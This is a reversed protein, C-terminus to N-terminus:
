ELEIIRPVKFRGDEVEPANAMAAEHPLTPQVEDPRFVNARPVPHATPPVHEAAVEGVKAAHELILALQHRFRDREEETLALRALRAVHEVDIEVPVAAFTAPGEGGALREGHGRLAPARRDARRGLHLVDHERDLHQRHLRRLEPRDAVGDRGLRDPGPTVAFDAANMAADPRCDAYYHTKTSDAGYARRHYWSSCITAPPTPTSRGARVAALLICVNPDTGGFLNSDINREWAV